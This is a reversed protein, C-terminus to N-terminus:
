GASGLFCADDPLFYFTTSSSFCDFAIETGLVIRKKFTFRFPKRWSPLLFLKLLVM